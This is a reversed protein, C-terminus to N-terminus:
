ADPDAPAAPALTRVESRLDQVERRLARLEALMEGVAEGSSAPVAEDAGDSAANAATGAPTLAASASRSRQRLARDVDELRLYSALSAAVVGLLALGSLMLFTATIRGVLTVPVMDGYGVTTVTVVAWWLSDGYSTFGHYPHEAEYVIFASLLTVATGYLVAVGLREALYRLGRVGKFGVEVVRALRALRLVTLVVTNDLDPFLVYWPFTLLVVGLDFWGVPRRLYRRDIRLHVVLDVAFVLWCLLDVIFVPPSIGNTAGAVILPTLAAVLVLPTSRREWRDIRADRDAPTTAVPGTPTVPALTDM